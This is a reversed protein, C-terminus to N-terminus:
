TNRIRNFITFATIGYITMATVVAVAEVRRDSVKSSIYTYTAQSADMVAVGAGRIVGLTGEAISEGLDGILDAFSEVLLAGGDLLDQAEDELIEIVEDGEKKLWKGGIYAVAVPVLVM